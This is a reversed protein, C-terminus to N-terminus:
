FAKMKEDDLEGEWRAVVATALCNGMVNVSTRAMDMLADIGFIALIPWEPLGFGAATASLIVLSARAVGAVGKSTLMLTLVMVIQQEIPFPINAAQAVFVSALALYLTTGDLNFSYGTPIVFSVIKQPVGFRTMLEMAKPLAADSTSTAFAISMPEKAAKWFQGIPIRCLIMIPVFVLLVFVILAVYLTGLLMALNGLVSVGMKAITSAIAGGVAIPAFYMVIKTFNFMIDAMAEVGSVIKHKMAQNKMMSISIALLISFVVVQLVANEAIAKAINEPFTHLLIDDWHQEVLHPMKNEGTFKQMGVGAKSINIAILGVILALTTVVEFYVLSKWGMRGVQKMDSHGAIGVVLTTLLLPAIITKIMRLFIKSLVEFNKGVEPFFYGFAAGFLMALFIANTLKNNKVGWYTIVFLTTLGGVITLIKLALEM